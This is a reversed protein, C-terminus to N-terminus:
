SLKIVELASHISTMTHTSAQSLQVMKIHGNHQLHLQPNSTNVKHCLVVYLYLKINENRGLSSDNSQNVHM